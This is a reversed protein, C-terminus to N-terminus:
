VDGVVQSSYSKGETRFRSGGHQDWRIVMVLACARVRPPPPRPTPPPAPPMKKERPEYLPGQFCDIHFIHYEFVHGYSDCLNSLSDWHSPKPPPPTGMVKHFDYLGVREEPKLGIKGWSLLCVAAVGHVTCVYRSLFFAM